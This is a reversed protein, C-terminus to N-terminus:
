LSIGLEELFTKEKRKSTPKGGRTLWREVLPGIKVLAKREDDDWAEADESREAKRREVPRGDKAM